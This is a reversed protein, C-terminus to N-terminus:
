RPSRRLYGTIGFRGIVTRQRWNTVESYGNSGSGHGLLDPALCM